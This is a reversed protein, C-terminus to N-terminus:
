RRGAEEYPVMDSGGEEGVPVMRMGCRLCTLMRTWLWLTDDQDMSAPQIQECNLCWVQPGSGM